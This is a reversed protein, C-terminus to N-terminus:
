GGRSSGMKESSLSTIQFLNLDLCGRRFQMLLINRGIWPSLFVTLDQVLQFRVVELGLLIVGKYLFISWLWCNIFDHPEEMSNSPSLGPLGKTLTYSRMSIGELVDLGLGSRRLLVSSGLDWKILGLKLAMCVQSLGLSVVWSQKFFALSRSTVVFLLFWASCVSTGCWLSVRPHTLLPPPVTDHFSHTWVHGHQARTAKVTHHLKSSDTASQM